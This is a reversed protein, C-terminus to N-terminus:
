VSSPVQSRTPLLMGTNKMWSPMLNGSMTWAALGADRGHSGGPATPERVGEPVEDRQVGLGLVVRQPVHGIAADVGGEPHHFAEADVVKRSTPASPAVVKALNWQFGRAPTFERTQSSACSAAPPSGSKWRRSRASEM